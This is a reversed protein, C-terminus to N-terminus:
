ISTGTATFTDGLTRAIANSPILVRFGLALTDATDTANFVACWQATTNLMNQTINRWTDKVGFDTVAQVGSSGNTCTNLQDELENWKFAYGPNDGGIFSTTYNTNSLNLRVNTNGMNELTLNARLISTFGTCGASTTGVSDMICAPFGGTVYGSGFTINSTTFNILTNSTISINTSGYTTSVAAGTLGRFGGFKNLTAVSGFLAIFLTAVMIVVLTRSTTQEM